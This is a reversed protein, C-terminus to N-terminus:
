ECGYDTYGIVTDDDVQDITFSGIPFYDPAPYKTGLNVSFDVVVTYTGTVLTDIESIPTGSPNRVIINSTSIFHAPGAYTVAGTAIELDYSYQVNNVETWQIKKDTPSTVVENRLELYGFSWSYTRFASGGPRTSNLERYSFTGDPPVFTDCLTIIQAKLAIIQDKLVILAKNCKELAENCEELEENCADLDNQLSDILEGSNPLDLAASKNSIVFRASANADVIVAKMQTLVNIRSTLEIVTKVMDAYTLQNSTKIPEM